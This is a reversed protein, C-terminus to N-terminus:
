EAKEVVKSNGDIVRETNIGSMFNIAIDYRTYIIILDNVFYDRKRVSVGRLINPIISHLLDM